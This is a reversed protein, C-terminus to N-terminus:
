LPKLNYHAVKIGRINFRQNYRRQLSGQQGLIKYILGVWSILFHGDRLKFNPNGFCFINYLKLVSDEVTMRNRQDSYQMSMEHEYSHWLQSYATTIPWPFDLLSENIDSYTNKRKEVKREIEVVVSILTKSFKCYNVKRELRLGRWSTAFLEKVIVPASRENAIGVLLTLFRCAYTPM